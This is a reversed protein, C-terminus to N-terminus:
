TILVNDWVIEIRPDKRTNARALAEDLRRIKGLARSVNLEAWPMLKRMAAENIFERVQFQSISKM